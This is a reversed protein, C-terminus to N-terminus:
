WGGWVNCRNPLFWSPCDKELGSSKRRFMGMCLAVEGREFGKPKERVEVVLGSLGADWNESAGTAASDPDANVCASARLAPQWSYLHSAPWISCWERVYVYGFPSDPCVCLGCVCVSSVHSHPIPDVEQNLQKQPEKKFVYLSALTYIFKGLGSLFWGTLVKMSGSLDHM